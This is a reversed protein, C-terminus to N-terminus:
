RVQDGDRGTGDDVGYDVDGTVALSSSPGPMTVLLTPVVLSPGHLGRSSFFSKAIVEGAIVGSSISRALKAIEFNSETGISSSREVKSLILMRSNCATALATPTRV